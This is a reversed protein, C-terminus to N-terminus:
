FQTNQISHSIDHKCFFIKKTETLQQETNIYLWCLGRRESGVKVNMAVHDGAHSSWFSRSCSKCCVPFIQWTRIQWAEQKKGFRLFMLLVYLSIELHDHSYLNWWKGPWNYMCDNQFECVQFMIVTIRCVHKWSFSKGEEWPEIQCLVCGCIFLWCFCRLSLFIIPTAETRLRYLRQGLLGKVDESLKSLIFFVM